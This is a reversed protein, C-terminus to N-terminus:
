LLLFFNGLLVADDLIKSVKFKGDIKFQSPTAPATRYVGKDNIWVNLWHTIRKRWIKLLSENGLRYLWPASMQSFSWRGGSTLQSIDRTVHWTDGTSPRNDVPGVGDLKYIIHVKNPFWRYMGKWGKWRCQIFKKKLLHLIFYCFWCGHPCPPATTFINECVM